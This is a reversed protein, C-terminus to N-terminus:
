NYLQFEQIRAYGDYGSQTGETIVLRFYRATVAPITRDTMASANGSVSDIDTWTTGDASAQLKYARANYIDYSSSVAGPHIVVWRKVTVPAFLDAQLWYDNNTTKAIAVWKSALDGDLAKQPTESALNYANASAWRNLSINTSGYVEFDYIRAYGDSGIQTGQTIYLRVYRADASISRDTLGATNGAISELDTWNVGDVSKQLKFDRTNYAPSEGNYSAHKVVWRTLSQVSGLDVALWHTTGTTSVWKSTRMGDVAREPGNSGASASATATRGQTIPVAAYVGEDKDYVNVTGGLQQVTTTTDGWRLSDYINMTGTFGAGTKTYPQGPMVGAQLGVMHISGGKEILVNPGSSTDVSPLFLTLNQPGTGGSQAITHLGTKVAFADAAFSAVNTSNGFVFADTHALTYNKAADFGYTHPSNAHKSQFFTGYTVVVQEVWGGNTNAGVNVAVNAANIWTGSVVFRDAATTGYDIGNYGNEIEVYKVWTDTGAARVTYPYKKVPYRSRIDAPVGPDAGDAFGQEPYYVSFGKIGAGQSLTLFATASDPATTDKGSYALLVTTDLNNHAHVYGHSGTLEVGTPVQLSGSVKYSGPPLFVTGGGAIGAATLASQIAPGDDAVGNGKANYPADKVNILNSENAPKRVPAFAYFLPRAQWVKDTNIFEGVEARVFDTRVNANIKAMAGYSGNSSPPGQEILIGNNAENISIGYMTLGDNKWLKIGFLYSNTYGAIQERQAASPKNIVASPANAWIESDMFLNTLYSYEYNGDLTIGQFLFTGYIDQINVASGKDFYIGQFSNYFTLRYANVSSAESYVTYPYSTPAFGGASYAGQNPYWFSLDRVTANAGSLTVASETTSYVALITGNQPTEQLPNGWNGRLVVNAPVTLGSDLRYTGSPLYVVGGGMQRALNLASQIAGAADSVGTTDATVVVNAIVTESNDILDAIRQPAPFSPASARKDFRIWDVYTGPDPGSYETTLVHTGAELYVPMPLSYTQLATSDIKNTAGKQVNDILTTISGKKGSTGSKASYVIDYWGADSAGVTFTYKLYESIYGATSSGAAQDNSSVVYRNTGDSYLDVNAVDRYATERIVQSSAHAFYADRISGSNFDEAQITGPVTHTGYPVGDSAAAQRGPTLLMVYAIMLLFLVASRVMWKM